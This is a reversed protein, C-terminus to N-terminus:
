DHGYRGVRGNTGSAATVGVDGAGGGALFSFTVHLMCFYAYHFIFYIHLICRSISMCYAIPIEGSDAGDDISIIHQIHAQSKLVEVLLLEADQPSTGNPVRKEDV